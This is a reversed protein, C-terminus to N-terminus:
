VQFHILMRMWDVWDLFLGVLNLIYGIWVVTMYLIDLGIWDLGSPSCDLGTWDDLRKEHSDYQCTVLDRQEARGSLRSSSKVANIDMGAGGISRGSGMWRDHSALQQKSFGM